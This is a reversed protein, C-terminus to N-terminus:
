SAGGCDKGVHTGEGAQIEALLRLDEESLESTMEGLVRDFSDILRRTRTIARDMSSEGTVGKFPDFGAGESAREAESRAAILASLLAAAEDRRTRTDEIVRCFETM